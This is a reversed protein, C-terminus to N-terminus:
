GGCVPNNNTLQVPTSVPQGNVPVTISGDVSCLYFNFWSGYSGTRVIANLKTPLAQLWQGIQGRDQSLVGSVNQLRAIDTKLYPRSQQLLGSTAAALDNINALSNGISTRDAALASTFRQLQVVLDSVTQQRQAVTSLVANLNTILNGIVQDRNAISNTLSATHLLLTDITGGEGQLTQIIEYSLRNVDAPTLAQFLPKFGNFLVTLNLAPETQTIPITGGPSLPPATGPGQALEIYRQGVLNLYRVRADTNRYLRVSRNVAFTVLADKRDVLRISQVSGVRVGAIRIGDGPNLGTVDTFIARYSASGGFTINGITSALIFTLFSTIVAFIILKTLPAAIKM